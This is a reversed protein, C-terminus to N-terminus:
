QCHESCYGTKPAIAFERCQDRTCNCQQADITYGPPTWPRVLAHLELPQSKLLKEAGVNKAAPSAQAGGVAKLRLEGKAV